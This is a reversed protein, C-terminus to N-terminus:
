IDRTPVSPVKPSQRISSVWSFFGPSYICLVGSHWNDQSNFDLFSGLLQGALLGPSSVQLYVWPLLYCAHKEECESSILRQQLFGRSWISKQSPILCRTEGISICHDWSPPLLPWLAVCSGVFSLCGSVMVSVSTEMLSQRELLPAGGQHLVVEWPSWGFLQLDRVRLFSMWKDESSQVGSQSPTQGGKESM